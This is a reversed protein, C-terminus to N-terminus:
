FGREKLREWMKKNEAPTIKHLFKVARELWRLKDKASMQMYVKIDELNFMEDSKRKNRKM